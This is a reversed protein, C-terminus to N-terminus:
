VHLHPQVTTLAPRPVRAVMRAGTWVEVAHCKALVGYANGVADADTDCAVERFQFIKMKQDLLYIRYDSM